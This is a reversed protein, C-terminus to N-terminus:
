VFIKNVSGAFGDTSATMIVQCGLGTAKSVCEESNKDDLQDLIDDLLLIPHQGHMIIKLKIQSFITELIVKKKEGLSLFDFNVGDKKISFKTRHTGFSLGGRIRDLNRREKINQIILREAYQENDSNVFIKEADGSQELILESSLVGSLSTLVDSRVKLIKVMLEAIHGELTNLWLEDYINSKLLQSRESMMKNYGNCYKAFQSDFSYVVRDFFARRAQNNTNFNNIIEPSLWVIVISDALEAMKEIPKSNIKIAKTGKEYLVDIKKSCTGDSITAIVSWYGGGIKVIDVAKASRMGNGPYLMSAGELISSKGAGNRGIIATAGGPCAEYETLNRFNLLKINEISYKKIMEKTCVNM